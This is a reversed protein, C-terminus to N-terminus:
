AKAIYKVSPLGKFDADQTWIIAAHALGTAYIISDALPLQHTVGLKAANLSIEVDLEIIKGHLMCEVCEFAEKESRNRLVHKFVELISISPVILQKTNEIARAFFNANKTDAFYELWGSSDVVNNKM